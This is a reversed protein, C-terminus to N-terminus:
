AVGGTQATVFQMEQKSLCVLTSQSFEGCVCAYVSVWMKLPLCFMQATLAKSRKLGKLKKNHEDVLYKTALLMGKIKNQNLM